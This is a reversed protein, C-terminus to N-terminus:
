SGQAGGGGARRCEAFRREEEARRIAFLERDVEYRLREATRQARELYRPDTFRSGAGAAVPMLMESSRWRVVRGHPHERVCGLEFAWSAADLSLDALDRQCALLRGEARPDAFWFRARYLVANHYYAPFGLVADKGLRVAMRYLLEAVELGLGLGPHTQGPLRPRDPRFPLGPAQLTMWEVVVVELLQEAARTATGAAAQRAAAATCAPGAAPAAESPPPLPPLAITGEHAILEALLAGRQGHGDAYLRLRQDTRDRLDLEVRFGDWGRQRLLDFIGYAELAYRIGEGSYYGLFYSQQRWSAPDLDQETLLEAPDALARLQAHGLRAAVRAFRARLARERDPDREHEM